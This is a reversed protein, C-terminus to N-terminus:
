RSRGTTRTATLIPLFPSSLTALSAPSGPSPLNLNYGYNSVPHQAINFAAQLTDSPSISGNFKGTGLLDTAAFLAGCPSGDGEVGGSTATCSNLMDALTNIAVYPM